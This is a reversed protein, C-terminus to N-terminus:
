AAADQTAGKAPRDLKNISIVRIETASKKQGDKAIYESTRIEGQIQLHTGKTLTKAFTTLKGWVICRHWTSEACREGTTRDKWSRKTAM